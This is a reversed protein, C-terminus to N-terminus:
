DDKNVENFAPDKEPVICNVEDMYCAKMKEMDPSLKACDRYCRERKVEITEQAILATLDFIVYLIIMITCFLEIVDWWLKDYRKKM